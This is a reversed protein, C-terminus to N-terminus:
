HTPGSVRSQWSTCLGRLGDKLPLSRVPRHLKSTWQATSIDQWRHTGSTEGSVAAASQTPATQPEVQVAECCRLEARRDHADHDAVAAQVGLLRTLSQLAESGAHRSERGRTAGGHRDALCGPRPPTSRPAGPPLPLNYLDAVRQAKGQSFQRLAPCHKGNRSGDGSRSGHGSGNGNHCSSSSLKLSFGNIATDRKSIM